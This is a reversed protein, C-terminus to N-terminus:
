AAGIPAGTGELLRFIQEELSARLTEIYEIKGGLQSIHAAIESLNSHQPSLLVFSTGRISVSGYRQLSQSFYEISNTSSFSTEFGIISRHLIDKIDGFSILKGLHLLAMEDCLSEIDSLVHSSFFVTCGMSRREAIIERVLRRGMPDLGSMPEDFILLEPNGLLSQAINIRQQMGKSFRGVSTHRNELLGVRSLLAETQQQAETKPLNLLAAHLSLIEWPTLTPPLQPIEPIYGIKQRVRPDHPSGGLVHIEGDTPSHLGMIAKITTSKGAGNPGIFGFTSGRKVHFTLDQLLTKKRGWFGERIVKGVRRLEIAHQTPTNM